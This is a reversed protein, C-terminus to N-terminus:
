RLGLRQMLRYFNSRNLGLSRAAAAMNGRHEALRQEILEQQFRDTAEKMALGADVPLPLAATMSDQGVPMSPELDLHARQLIVTDGQTHARAKLAARSLLHELERVNGPWNYSLLAQQAEPSLRLARIGLRRQSTELLFGALLLVDRGRERLPPVEVPYVSLRHYLDARFRGDAVEQKLDRNTAAIIRVDVSLHRDSGVRQIEGSQLARLLKAQISLPLEGIEDLFLTGGNAIEFKGARDSLAGSFAGKAHGFLESEAINEPLAACNVYVQPEEARDSQSHVQRAVLEKGVGTEGQVLVTLNSRAVIAIEQRLRKIPECDGIIEFGQTEERLAKAVQHEREARAALAAMRDAAKVTAETLGIFTRLETPDIRDFTDPQMADLTLVGWPRDDIYLSAGMCDHVHLQHDETPILGDYPDPLESDAAFRVPSRSHLLRSLRPHEDIRFRRGMTDPSLGEIALPKLQEGELKLLAAADCPFIKLMAELLRRYRLSVPIDRSLDAVIGILSESFYHTTM